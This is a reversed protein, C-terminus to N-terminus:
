LNPYSKRGELEYLDDRRSLSLANVVPPLTDHLRESGGPLSKAYLPNGGNNPLQYNWAARANLTSMLSNSYLKTLAFEWIFNLNTHPLVLFFVLDALAAIATIFGTQLTLSIIRSIASDTKAYGTKRKYLFRTLTATILIDAAAATVFWLLAPPRIESKRDFRRILSITIATWIGGACSTAALISITGSVFNSKSIKMIRWAIFLQVPTSVAIIMIPGSALMLPFFTTSEDTGFKIVLPEYMVAMDLGTNITETIFLYFVLNKIWLSDNKCSQYYTFMQAVVVGYLIMNLFAGILMPGFLLQINAM